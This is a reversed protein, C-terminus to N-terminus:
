QGGGYVEKIAMKVDKVYEEKDIYRWFYNNREDKAAIRLRKGVVKVSIPKGGVAKEIENRFVLKDEIKSWKARMKVGGDRGLM